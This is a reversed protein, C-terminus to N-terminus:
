EGEMFERHDRMMGERVWEDFSGFLVTDPCLPDNEPEGTWSLHIVAYTIIHGEVEFLVDDRDSRQALPRVSRRWLIHSDTLERLLEKTLNDAYRGVAVWPPIFEFTEDNANM